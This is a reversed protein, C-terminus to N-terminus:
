KLLYAILLVASITGVFSGILVSATIIAYSILPHEDLFTKMLKLSFDDFSYCGSENIIYYM